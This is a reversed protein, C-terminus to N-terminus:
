GGADSAPLPPLIGTASSARLAQDIAARPDHGRLKLTRHISMLVAQTAAGQRSRNCQSNKRLIVAPRVQREAFNNHWDAEPHDLFTFLSDQWRQLREALRKADPDAYVAGSLSVLRADIRTIRSAYKGPTFDKRQRLRIGDRLLRRLMKVFERWERAHDPSKRPDGRRGKEDVHDLERFLHVLCCQHEGGAGLMLQRYPAFFDHILIGRFAETLFKKLAKGDRHEDIMSYCNAHNAFCWLWYTDGNVRWGTEDANLTASSKAERGIQEYWPLLV